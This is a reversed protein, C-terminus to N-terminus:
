QQAFDIYYPIHFVFINRICEQNNSINVCLQINHSSALSNLISQRGCTLSTVLILQQLMPTRLDCFSKVNKWFSLDNYQAAVVILVTVWM